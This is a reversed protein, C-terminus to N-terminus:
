RLMGELYRIERELQRIRGTDRPSLSAVEQRKEDLMEELKTRKVGWAMQAEPETDPNLVTSSPPDVRVRESVIELVALGLLIIVVASSVLIRLVTTKM